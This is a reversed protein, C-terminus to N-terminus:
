EAGETLYKKIIGAGAIRLMESIQAETFLCVNTVSLSAIGHSYIWLHMYVEKAMKENFGYEVQICKLIKYYNEDIIQLVTNEDSVCRKRMFLLEFLKPREAAFRIYGQGVGKFANIQKMGDDVYNQYIAKAAVYTEERVEDMSEFVTFIPRTSSGLREGLSRATLAETGEEEVIKLAVDVIEKKTFKAKPPM